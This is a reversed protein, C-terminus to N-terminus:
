TQIMNQISQLKEEAEETEELVSRLIQAIAEEDAEELSEYDSPLHQDEIRSRQETTLIYDITTESIVGRRDESETEEDEEDPEEPKKPSEPQLEEPLKDIAELEDLSAGATVLQEKYFPDEFKPLGTYYVNERAHLRALETLYEMKTETDYEEGPGDTVEIPDELWYPDDHLEDFQGEYYGKTPEIDYEEAIEETIGVYAPRYEPSLVTPCWIGLEAHTNIIDRVRPYEVFDNYRGSEAPQGPKDTINKRGVDELDNPDSSYNHDEIEGGNSAQPHGRPYAKTIPVPLKKSMSHRQYEVGLRGVAKLIEKTTTYDFNLTDKEDTTPIDSPEEVSRISVLICLRGQTVPNFSNFNFQRNLGKETEADLIKRRNAYLTLGMKSSDKTRLLGVTFDVRLRESIGDFKEPNVEYGRITRPHLDDMPVFAWDYDKAQVRDNVLTDNVYLDLDIDPELGDEERVGPFEGGLFLSYTSALEEILEAGDEGFDEELAITLDEIRIFSTGEEMEYPELPIETEDSTYNDLTVTAKHGMEEGERRSAFTVTHGLSMAGRIAGVGAWGIADPLQPLDEAEESASTGPRLVIAHRDESLGGCNDWIEIYPEEEPQNDRDQSDGSEEEVEAQEEGADDQEEDDTTPFEIEIRADTIKEGVSESQQEILYNHRRAADIANDVQEKVSPIAERRALTEVIRGSPAVDITSIESSDGSDPTM